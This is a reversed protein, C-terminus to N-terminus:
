SNPQIPDKMIDEAQLEILQHQYDIDFNVKGIAAKDAVHNLCNDRSWNVSMFIRKEPHAPTWRSTGKFDKVYQQLPNM